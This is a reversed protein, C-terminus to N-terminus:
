TGRLSVRPWLARADACKKSSETSPTCRRPLTGDRQLKALRETEPHNTTTEGQPKLHARGELSISRQRRTLQCSPILKQSTGTQTDPENKSQSQLPEKHIESVLSRGTIRTAFVKQWRNQRKVRKSTNKSTYFHKIKIRGVEDLKGKITIVNQIGNLYREGDSPCSAIKKYCWKFAENLAKVIVSLDWHACLGHKPVTLPRPTLNRKEWSYGTIGSGNREKLARWFWIQELDLMWM